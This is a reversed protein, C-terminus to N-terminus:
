PLKALLRALSQMTSWGVNTFQVHDPNRMGSSARRSPDSGRLDAPDFPRPAPRSPGPHLGSRPPSRRWQQGLGASGPWSRRWTPLYRPLNESSCSPCSFRTVGSNSLRFTSLLGVGSRPSAYVLNTSARAYLNTQALQSSYERKSEALNESCRDRM